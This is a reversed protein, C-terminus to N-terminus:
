KILGEAKMELMIQAARRAARGALQSCKELSGAEELRAFEQPDHINYWRGLLRTQIDRCMWAGEEQVFRQFLKRAFELRKPQGTVEDIEEGYCPDEIRERGMALGLALISGALAGCMNGMRATGGGLFGAAKFVAPTGPLNFEEGLALFTSQACGHYQKEYDAARREVRDLIEEQQGM